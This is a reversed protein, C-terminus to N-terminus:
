LQGGGGAGDLDSVAVHHVHYQALLSMRAGFQPRDWLVVMEVDPTRWSQAWSSPSKETVHLVVGTGNQFAESYQHGRHRVRAGPRLENHFEKEAYGREVLEALLSAAEARVDPALTELHETGTV